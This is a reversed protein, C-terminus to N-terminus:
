ILRIQKCLEYDHFYNNKGNSKQLTDPANLRELFKMEQSMYEFYRWEKTQNWYENAINQVNIDNEGVKLLLNTLSIVGKAPNDMEVKYYNIQDIQNPYQASIFAYCNEISDCCFFTRQRDPADIPKHENLVLDVWAKNNTKNEIFYPTLDNAVYSRGVEFEKLSAHYLIM